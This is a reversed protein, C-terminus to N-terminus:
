QVSCGEGVPDFTIMCMFDKLKQSPPPNPRLCYRGTQSRAERSQTAPPASVPQRLCGPGAASPLEGERDQEPSETTSWDPFQDKAEQDGSHEVFTAKKFWSINRTVRESGKEATVMTGSMGTVTWVGPEYPTRFKWGPKRDNIIVQDGICIDRVRAQRRRSAKDNVQKRKAQTQKRHYTTPEWGPGTPITDRRTGALILSWPALQVTLPEETNEYSSNHLEVYEETDEQGDLQSVTVGYTPWVGAALARTSPRAKGRDTSRLARGARTLLM